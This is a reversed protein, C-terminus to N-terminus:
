NFIRDFFSKKEIPEDITLEKKLYVKGDILIRYEGVVTKAKVPATINKQIKIERKVEADKKIVGFYDRSSYFKVNPKIGNKIQVMGIKDGKSLLKKYSYNNYFGELDKLVIKDRTKEDPAGLVVEIMSLNNKKSVISINYGALSHHGTKLGYIGYIGLLKNRNKFTQEGNRITAEKMSAIKLYDDYKLLERSLKYVDNVTSVDMQKGTMEPPLGAPTYYHTNEMGLINAKKNMSKVFSDIDGKGVYYALSYAANNASYVAAAKILDRVSLRDGKTMWIRSGGIKRVEEPINVMDDMSIDGTEIAEFTLLLTMMKTVSALPYVKDENEQNIIKGNSTGLLRAVPRNGAGFSLVCIALYMIIIIKKM